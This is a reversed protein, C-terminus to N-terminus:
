STTSTSRSRRASPSSPQQQRPTTSTATPSPRSRRRSASVRERAMQRLRSLESATVTRIPDSPGSDTRGERCPEDDKELVRLALALLRRLEAVEASSVLTGQRLAEGDQADHGVSM